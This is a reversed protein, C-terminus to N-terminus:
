DRLCRVSAGVSKLGDNLRNVNGRFSSLNRIWAINIDLETASWFFALFRM